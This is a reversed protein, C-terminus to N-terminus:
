IALIYIGLVVLISSIMKYALMKYSLEEDVFNGRRNVLYIMLLIAIPQTASVAVVISVLQLSLAYYFALNAILFLMSISSGYIIMKKDFKVERFRRRVRKDILFSIRMCILGLMFWFIYSWYDTISLLYKAVISEIALAANLGLMPILARSIVIERGRYSVLTASITLMAIALYDLFSLSENLLLYALIVVFIPHIYSLITIRSLEELLLSRMFLLYGLSMGVGAAFSIIVIFPDLDIQWIIPIIALHLPYFIALFVAILLSSKFRTVILRKELLDVGSYAFVSIIVFALWELAM